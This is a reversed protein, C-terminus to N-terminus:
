RPSTFTAMLLDREAMMFCFHIEMGNSYTSRIKLKKKKELSVTM